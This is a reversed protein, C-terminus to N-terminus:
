TTSQEGGHQGSSVAHIGCPLNVIVPQLVEPQSVTPDMWADFVEPALIVPMRDHIPRMRDNATTVIISCSDLSKGDCEWHEWLGAFAFPVHDELYIFYPQKHGDAEVHWEYLGDAAILCRRHRFASRFAPKQAVTEARANITSYATKPEASRAPVLGWKMTVLERGGQAANRAVLVQTSPAINYSAWCDPHGQAQFLYAFQAIPTIRVYRGCM